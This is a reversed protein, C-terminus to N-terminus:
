KKAFRHAADKLNKLDLKEALVEMEKATSKSVSSALTTVCVKKLDKM